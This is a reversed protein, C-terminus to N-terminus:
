TREESAPIVTHTAKVLNNCDRLMQLAKRDWVVSEWESLIREIRDIDGLRGHSPLEFAESETFTLEGIVSVFVKGESTLYLMIPKGPTPMGIGKILLDSM